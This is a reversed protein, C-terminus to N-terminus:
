QKPIWMLHRVVISSKGRRDISTATASPTGGTELLCATMVGQSADVLYEQLVGTSPQTSPPTPNATGPPPPTYGADVEVLTILEVMIASYQPDNQKAYDQALQDIEYLSVGNKAATNIALAVEYGAQAAAVEQGPYKQGYGLLASSTGVEAILTINADTNPTVACGSCFLMAIGILSLITKM